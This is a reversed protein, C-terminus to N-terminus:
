IFNLTTIYKLPTGVIATTDMVVEQKNMQMWDLERSQKTVM